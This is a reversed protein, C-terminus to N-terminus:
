LDSPSREQLPSRGPVGTAARRRGPPPAPHGRDGAPLPLAWGAQILATRVPGSGAKPWHEAAAALLRLVLQLSRRRHAPHSEARGPTVENAPLKAPIPKLAAKAAAVEGHAQSIKKEAAPIARNKAAAALQPDAILAALASPSPWPRSPPRSGAVPPPAEYLTIQRAQGYDKITVMEDALTLM